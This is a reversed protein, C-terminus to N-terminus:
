WGGIDLVGRITDADVTKATFLGFSLAGQHMLMGIGRQIRVGHAACAVLQPPESMWYNADTWVAGRALARVDLTAVTVVAEGSTCNVVLDAAPAHAAFGAATLPGASFRTGPFTAALAQCAREARAETRNLLHVGVAGHTALAAAVARGTGGAGLVIARRGQPAVGMEEVLARVYGEGDTNHGVLAGEERVVVNVAGALRASESLADLGPLVRETVPGPLNVGSLALTRIADAVAGARAPSVDFAVYIADVRARRFLENHMAPSLSHRVPHGLLGFVRTSGTIM